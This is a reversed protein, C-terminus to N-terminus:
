MCVGTDCTAGAACDGTGACSTRCGAGDCAYPACDLTLPVCAGAGDCTSALNMVSTGLPCSPGCAGNPDSGAAVPACTGESGPLACSRCGGCAVDCCVGQACAGSQCEGGGTCPAADPKLGCAGATCVAPAACDSDSSCSNKCTTAGCEYPACASPVPTGCAGAGDCTAGPTYIAAACSPALCSTGAVYKRCAGAACKGDTGCSAAGQDLCQGTPDPAGNPVDTCTGMTGALSCSRCPDSCPTACCVGQACTNSACEEDDSCSAGQAKKGCRNGSCVNGSACNSDATCASFCQSGNCAFPACPLASPAVCAGSADCLSPPTYVDSACTEPACVTGPRYRGCGGAGDCTGDTGCSAPGQDACLGHPDAAAAPVDRCTGLSSPLGCSRCVGACAQDCCVGDACVQSACESAAACSQGNQKLGCSGATCAIGPQCDADSTCRTGCAGGACRYPACSRLGAARCGGLGDCTGAASVQDGSATCSPPVCITELPYLACSGLGDCAGTQGCSAPGQDACHGHPDPNGQDIPWCTGVRGVQDCAVCAGQCAVNCCVGDACFGSACDADATCVAGRMKKGCSGALCPQGVVCDADARCTAFCQDTSTDCGFPACITSPGPRCHGDGDCVEIDDVAAGSCTGARCVTGAQHRRCAGRGDCSGDLGCTSPDARVCLNPARPPQGAPVVTCTGMSGPVNCAKCTEACSANCCVGDVCQGSQCESACGCPQGNAKNQAGGGSCGADAATDRPADTGADMAGGRKGGGCGGLALM